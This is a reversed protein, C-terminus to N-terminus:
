GGFSTECRYMKDSLDLLAKGDWEKTAPGVLLEQKVHALLRKADGFRKDLRTCAQEYAVKRDVFCSLGSIVEHAKGVCAEELFSMRTDYDPYLKEVFKRRFNGYQLIDGSFTGLSLHPGPLMTYQGLEPGRYHSASQVHPASFPFAQPNLIPTLNEKARVDVPVASSVPEFQKSRLDSTSPTDRGYMESMSKRQLETDTVERPTHVQTGHMKMKSFNEKIYKTCTNLLNYINEQLREAHAELNATNEPLDLLDLHYKSVKGLVEMCSTKIKIIASSEGGSMELQSFAQELSALERQELLLKRQIATKSMVDNFQNRLQNGETHSDHDVRNSDQMQAYEGVSALLNGPIINDDSNGSAIVTVSEVGTTIEKKDLQNGANGKSGAVKKPPM